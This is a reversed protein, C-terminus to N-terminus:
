DFSQEVTINEEDAIEKRIEYIMHTLEPIILDSMALKVAEMSGPMAVVIKNGLVGASARSLMAASGIEEYSIMRFLEGFGNIVKDVSEHVAEITFDRKSIGTGGTLLIVDLDPKEKLKSLASKILDKNDKIVSYGILSHFADQVLEQVLQGSYDNEKTRTDSVSIVYCRAIAPAKSKHEQEGM